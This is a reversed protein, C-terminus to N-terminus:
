LLGVDLGVPRDDLGPSGHEFHVTYLISEYPVSRLRGLEAAAPHGAAAGVLLFDRRRQEWGVARLLDGVAPTDGDRWALLAVSATDAPVGVRPLRPYGAWYVPLRALREYRGGYRTVVYQQHVGADGVACGARPTGDRARLLRVDADTVGAPPSVPALNLRGPPAIAALDALTGGTLRSAARPRVGVRFCHTTYPGVTRYEPMSPRRRELMRRALTNDALITTHFLDVDLAHERLFAYVKPILPVRRRFEPLGKLGTLYGVRRPTGNVWADRVVCAGMGVIRGTAAERVVPVVVADGEALLSAYPDPGRGFRVAIDGPFGDDSDYVAALAPGDAPGALEIVWESPSSM